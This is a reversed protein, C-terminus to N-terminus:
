INNKRIIGENILLEIEAKSYDYRNLIFDNITPETIAIKYILNKRTKEM